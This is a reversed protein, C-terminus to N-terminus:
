TTKADLSILRGCYPCFRGVENPLPAPSFGVETPTSCYVDYGCATKWETGFGDAKGKKYTCTPGFADAPSRKKCNHLEGDSNALRWGQPLQVWELDTKGCHKCTVSADHEDDDWPGPEAYDRWSM